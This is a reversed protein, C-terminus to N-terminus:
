EPESRFGVCIRNWGNIVVVVMTLKMLEEESFQGRAEHWVDDPVRSEAVLTLSECWALAARERASFCSAEHWAPLLDLRRESEGAKRADKMHMALCFACGNIQSARIKVLEILSRELGCNEVYDHVKLMAALAEPSAKGYDMRETM